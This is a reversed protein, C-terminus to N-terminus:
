LSFKKAFRVCTLRLCSSKKSNSDIAGPVLVALILILDGLVSSMDAFMHCLLSEHGIRFQRFQYVRM